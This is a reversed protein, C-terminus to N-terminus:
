DFPFFPVLVASGVLSELLANREPGYGTEPTDFKGGIDFGKGSSEGGGSRDDESERAISKPKKREPKDCEIFIGISEVDDDDDISDESHTILAPEWSDEVEIDDGEIDLILNKGPMWEKLEGNSKFKVYKYEVDTKHELTCDAVWIDGTTWKLPIANKVDWNGLGNANGVVGIGEGYSVHVKVQFNVRYTKTATARCVVIRVRPCRRGPIRTTPRRPQLKLMTFSASIIIRSVELRVFACVYTSKSFHSVNEFLWGGKNEFRTHELSWRRRNFDRRWLWAVCGRYRRCHACCDGPQTVGEYPSGPLDNGFSDYNYQPRCSYPPRREFSNRGQCNPCHSPPNVRNKCYCHDFDTRYIYAVVSRGYRSNCYSCCASASGRGTIPSANLDGGFWDTGTYVLPCNSVTAVLLIVCLSVQIIRTTSVSTVM